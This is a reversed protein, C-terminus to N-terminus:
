SPNVAPAVQSARRIVRAMIRTKHIIDSFEPAEPPEGAALRALREDRERLLDPIFDAHIDFPVIATKLGHERSSEILEAPFLTKALLIWVAAMSPTGPSLHFSLNTEGGRDGVARACARKAAHYIDGFDTPSSLKEEMVEIPARCRASLWRVFPAVESRPYDTVLFVQDFKRADLAQAIPGLGVAESEKPARLDTRGIWSVLVSRVARIYLIEQPDVLFIAVRKPREHRSERSSWRRSEPM